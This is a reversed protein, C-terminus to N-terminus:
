GATTAQMTTGVGEGNFAAGLDNPGVFQIALTPHQQAIQWMLRVKSAMGGTVDVGHSDGVAAFVADINSPTIMPILAAAADHQPDATYVGSEGVLVLRTPQLRPVLYGFLTETSLIAAGQGRDLVVDGHVVPVLGADLMAEVATLSWAEIEGNHAVAGASPPVGLANLGAELLMAVVARNLRGMADQVRAVGQWGRADRVGHQTGYRQAWYHGFSGGGHGVLLRTTPQDHQVEALTHAVQALVTTNLSEPQNKDTLVSGGLKIFTLM